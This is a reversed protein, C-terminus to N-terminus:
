NLNVIAACVWMVGTWCQSAARSLLLLTASIQHFPATALHPHPPSDPPARVVQLALNTWMRLFVYRREAKDLSKTKKFSWWRKFLDLTAGMMWRLAVCRRGWNTASRDVECGLFKRRRWDPRYPKRQVRALSRHRRCSDQKDQFDKEGNVLRFAGCEVRTHDCVGHTSLHSIVIPCVGPGRQFAKASVRSAIHLHPRNQLPRHFRGVHWVESPTEPGRHRKDFLYSAQRNLGLGLCFCDTTECGM